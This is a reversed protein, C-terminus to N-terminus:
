KFNGRGSANEFFFDLGGIVYYAGIETAFHNKINPTFSLGRPLVFNVISPNTVQAICVDYGLGNFDKGLLYSSVIKIKSDERLKVEITKDTYTKYDSMMIRNYLNPAVLLTDAWVSRAGAESRQKMVVDHLFDILETNTMTDLTKGSDNDNATSFSQNILGKQEGVGLYGARDIEDRYVINFGRQATAIDNKLQYATSELFGVEETATKISVKLLKGKGQTNILGRTDSNDNIDRFSGKVDLTISEVYEKSVMKGKQMKIGIDLFTNDPTPTWIMNQYNGITDTIFNASDGIKFNSDLKSIQNFTNYLDRSFQKISNPSYLIELDERRM